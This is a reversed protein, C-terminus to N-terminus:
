EPSPYDGPPSIGPIYLGRAIDEPACCVQWHAPDPNPKGNKTFHQGWKFVPVNYIGGAGLAMISEVRAAVRLITAGTAKTRGYWPYNIDVALGWAHNSWVYSDAVHKCRFGSAYEIGYGEEAMIWCMARFAPWARRDCSADSGPNSSGGKFFYTSIYGSHCSKPYLSRTIPGAGPWFDWMHKNTCNRRTGSSTSSPPVEDDDNGPGEGEWDWPPWMWDPLDPFMWEYDDAVRPLGEPVEPPRYDFWDDPYVTDVDPDRPDAILGAEILYAALAPSMKSANVHWESDPGNGLWHTDVDMYWTGANMDMVSNVGLLYHIYTESTIREFIRVQDDPELAPM